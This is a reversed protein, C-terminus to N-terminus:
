DEKLPTSYILKLLVGSSREKTGWRSYSLGGDVWCNGCSCHKLDHTTNSFIKNKCDLCEIRNHTLEMEAKLEEIQDMNTIITINYQDDLLYCNGTYVFTGSITQTAKLDYILKM